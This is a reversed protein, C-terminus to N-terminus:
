IFTYFYPPDTFCGPLYYKWSLAPNAPEKKWPLHIEAAVIM